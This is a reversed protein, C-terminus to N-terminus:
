ENQMEYYEQMLKYYKDEDIEKTSEIHRIIDGVFPIEEGLYDETLQNIELAVPCQPNHVTCGKCQKYHQSLEELFHEEKRRENGKLIVVSIAVIVVIMLILSTFNRYPTPLLSYLKSTGFFLFLIGALLRMTAEPIKKGLMKGVLIGILSVLIM